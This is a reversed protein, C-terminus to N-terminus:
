IISEEKMLQVYLEMVREVVKTLSERTASATLSFRVYFVDNVASGTLLINQENNILAILKQCLQKDPEGQKNKLIFNVLNFNSSPKFDALIGHDNKGSLEAFKAKFLEEM